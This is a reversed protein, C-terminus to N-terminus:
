LPPLHPHLQSWLLRCALPHPRLSRPTPRVRGAAYAWAQQLSMRALVLPAM